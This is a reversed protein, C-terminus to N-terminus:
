QATLLKRMAEALAAEAQRHNGAEHQAMGEDRLAVVEARLTADVDSKELYADIAAADVPCHAALAAGALSMSAIAALALKRIM